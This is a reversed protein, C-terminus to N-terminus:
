TMMILKISILAKRNLRNVRRRNKAGNGGAGPKRRRVPVRSFRTGSDSSSGSGTGTGSASITYTTTTPPESTSSPSSLFVGYQPAIWYFLKLYTQFKHGRVERSNLTFQLDHPSRSICILPLFDGEKAIIVSSNSLIQEKKGFLFPGSAFQPIVFLRATDLKQGKSNRCTWLGSDSAKASKIELTELLFFLFFM